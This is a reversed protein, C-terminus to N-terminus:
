LPWTSMESSSAARRVFMVRASDITEPHRVSSWPIMVEVTYGDDTRQGASFWRTDWSSWGGGWPVVEADAGRM